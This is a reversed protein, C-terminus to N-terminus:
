NTYGNFGYGYRGIGRLRNWYVFSFTTNAGFFSNTRWFGNFLANALLRVSFCCFFACKKSKSIHIYIKQDFANDLHKIIRCPNGVAVCNQPIPRTVVSGAGIWVNDEITVPQSYTRCFCGFIKKGEPTNTRGAVDTTHTATYIKVDSAILVNNGITIRNNDVIAFYIINLQM